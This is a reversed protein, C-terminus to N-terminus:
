LILGWFKIIPYSIWNVLNGLLSGGFFDGILLVAFLIIFGYRAMFMIFKNGYKLISALFNFGDLPAVPLLNFVFLSINLAFLTYFFMYVFLMFGSDIVAYKRIAIYAGCSLIAIVLNMVVGAISVLALGKRYNRFRLPNVPVPKAWGFCFLASCVFGIPDIHALPNLTLRGALQPTYDGCKYAVYAHAWEHLTFSIILVLVFALSAILFNTGSLDRFLVLM